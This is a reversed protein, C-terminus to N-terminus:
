DSPDEAEEGLAHYLVVPDDHTEHEWEVDIRFLTEDTVEVEISAGNSVEDGEDADDDLEYWAAGDHEAAIHEGRVFVADSEFSEGDTVSIEVTRPDAPDEPPDVERSSFETEPPEVADNSDGTCGALVVALVTGTGVLVTRRAPM